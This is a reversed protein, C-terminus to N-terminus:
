RLPPWPEVVGFAGNRTPSRRNSPVTTSPRSGWEGIPNADLGRVAGGTDCDDVQLSRPPSPCRRCGQSLTSGMLSSFFFRGSPAAPSSWSVSFSISEDETLTPESVSTSPCNASERPSARASRQRGRHARPDLDWPLELRRLLRLAKRCRNMARCCGRHARHPYSPPRPCWNPAVPSLVRRPAPASKLRPTESTAEAGDV